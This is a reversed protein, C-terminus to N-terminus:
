PVLDPGALDLDDVVRELGGGAVRVHELGLLGRRERGALLVLEPVEGLEEVVLLARLAGAVHVGGVQDSERLWIGPKLTFWHSLARVLELKLLSTTECILLPVAWPTVPVGVSIM